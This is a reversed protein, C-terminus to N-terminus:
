KHVAVVMARQLCNLDHVRVGTLWRMFLNFFWSQIRNLIPDVRPRRWCTVVDAGSVLYSTAANPGIFNDGPDSSVSFNTIGTFGGPNGGNLGTAQGTEYNVVAPGTYGPYNM